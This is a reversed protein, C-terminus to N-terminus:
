TPPPPASPSPAAIEPAGSDPFRGSLQAAMLMVASAGTSAALALAAWALLRWPAVPGLALLGAAVGLLIGLLILLRRDPHPLHRLWGWVRRIRAWLRSAAPGSVVNTLM